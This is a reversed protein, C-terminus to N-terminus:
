PGIIKVVNQVLTREEHRGGHLDRANKVMSRKGLLVDAWDFFLMLNYPWAKLFIKNLRKETEGVYKIVVGSRDIKLRDLQEKNAIIGLAM